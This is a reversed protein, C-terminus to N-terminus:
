GQVHPFRMASGYFRMDVCQNQQGKQCYICAGCPLSPNVAVVDGPTFGTVESGITSVIGAVEHGLIMPEKLRITGFGGHRYYHLDSGCIGGNRVSIEVQGPGPQGPEREEIRLDRADHIVITKMAAM